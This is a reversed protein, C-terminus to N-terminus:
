VRHYPHGTNITYSRYLQEALLGRVLLHPWTMAGFSIRMTCSNLQAKDFGVDGGILWAMKRVGNDELDSIKKALAVSGFSVGTEDLAYVAGAGWEKASMLLLATEQQQRQLTDLKPFGQFEKLELGERLREAYHDYLTKEPARKWKGITLILHQL